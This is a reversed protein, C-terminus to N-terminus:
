PVLKIRKDGLFVVDLWEGVPGGFAFRLLPNQATAPLDFVLDRVCTGGPDLDAGCPDRGPSESDLAAQGRPSLRHRLEHDDVAVVTDPDFRHTVRIGRNAFRIRVIWFMGSPREQSAGQGLEGRTKASLATLGLDDIRIEEGLAALQDHRNLAALVLLGAVSAAVLLFVVTWPSRRKASAEGTM